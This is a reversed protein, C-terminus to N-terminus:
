GQISFREWYEQPVQSQLTVRVTIPKDNQWDKFDVEGFYTFPAAKKGMMKERRVFLHIRYGNLLHDKMKIMARSKRSHQNQSQWEFEQDSLFRDAYRHDKAMSAKELTVMLFINDGKQLFGQNWSGSEFKEGFLPPIEARPYSAFLEATEIKSAGLKPELNWGNEGKELAVLHQTGSAGVQEGFWGRLLEPLVNDERGPKRLVNVAVERFDAEFEEGNIKVIVTGSPLGSNKERQLPFIIPKGHQNHNVKLLYNQDGVNFKTELYRALRWDCLERTLDQFAGKQETGIQLNLRFIDNEYKFWAQGNPNTRSVWANIPNKELHDRLENDENLSNGVDEALHPSRKAIRRFEKVLQTITIEGPLTNSNLMALLLVMKYSKTMHTTGLEEFFARYSEFAAVEQKNLGEMSKVFGLWSGYAKRTSNPNFGDHLAETATPRQGNRDQFDQYYFRLANANTTRQILGRLIDIAELDYTVECGSPLSLTGAQYQRLTNEIAMHGSDLDFLTQPKILFTRHNGIYDIVNLHSKGEAVRLGRGFQQLWIIRSETPRLMMVTDVQPLDIGENFLDVAFIIDLTGDNLRELSSARPASTAGAHVSAANIGRTSFFQAMYDSHRQSCCFGLTRTGGRKRIQELANDARKETALANTLETEDFRSSRWPINSYDVEDPVGFYRFPSLLGQNIGRDLDCRFVLNEQCLSLLDGGDTREPTATLGLLFKPEFYDILKRYTRAAAHHFEDIIIYDFYERQFKNLHPARSLTQVSAFIIDADPAKDQGNYKGFVADPRIKRFTRLAQNLIEERHAVFLVRKYDDNKSDFASLWTKGLGTALVVLGAKHGATKSKELAKLAEVQIDHPEPVLYDPDPPIDVKVVEPRQRKEYQSIWEFTVPRTEPGAFAKEFAGEVSRVGLPDMDSDVRYNWEVGSVLATKSLNSSGVYAAKQGHRTSILYSKPHFTRAKCEFVRLDLRGELDLLRRLAFPDTVNNYDGTLLRVRGGRALLDRLHEEILEVGSRLVFAVALDLNQAQDLDRILHTLLPDEQGGRVLPEDQTLIKPPELAYLTPAAEKVYNAKDPIVYRVGGTPDPVDGSYRPILHLHLHPVTQGAIEGINVGFNFGDPHHDALIAERAMPLADLLSQQEASTAAFWDGVHRKTILLAHGPTVPFADWLGIVLDSQFFISDSRPPCFPCKRIKM